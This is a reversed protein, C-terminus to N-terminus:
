ETEKALLARITALCLALAPTAADAAFIDEEGELTAAYHRAGIIQHVEWPHTQEPFMAEAFAIAADLSSTYLPPEWFPRPPPHEPHMFQIFTTEDYHVGAIRGMAKHLRMYGLPAAKCTEAIEADLERSPAKAEALKAELARLADTMSDGERECYRLGAEQDM